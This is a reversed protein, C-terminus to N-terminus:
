DYPDRFIIGRWKRGLRFNATRQTQEEPQGLGKGQTVKVSRRVRAEPLEVLKWSSKGKGEVKLYEM